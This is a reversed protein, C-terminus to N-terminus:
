NKNLNDHPRKLEDPLQGTSRLYEELQQQFQIQAKLGARHGFHSGLGCGFAVVVAFVIRLSQELGSEYVFIWIVPTLAVLTGFIIPALSPGELRRMFRRSSVFVINTYVLGFGILFATGKFSPDNILFLLESTFLTFASSVIFVGSTYFAFRPLNDM